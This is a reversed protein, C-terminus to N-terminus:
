FSSTEWSTLFNVRRSLIGINISTGSPAPLLKQGWGSPEVWVSLGLTNTWLTKGFARLVIGDNQLSFYQVQLIGCADMVTRIGGM